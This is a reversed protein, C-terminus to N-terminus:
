RLGKGAIATTLRGDRHTFSLSMLGAINCGIKYIHCLINCDHIRLCNSIWFHTGRKLGRSEGERRRVQADHLSGDDPELGEGTGDM